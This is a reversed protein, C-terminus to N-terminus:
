RTYPEQNQKKLCFVAYSNKVHSSNLRTSKRDQQEEAGAHQRHRGAADRFYQQRGREADGRRHRQEPEQDEGLRAACVPEERLTCIPLADHLSLASRPAPATPPCSFLPPRPCPSP